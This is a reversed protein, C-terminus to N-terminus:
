LFKTDLNSNTPSRDVIKIKVDGTYTVEFVGNNCSFMMITTSDLYAVKNQYHTNFSIPKVLNRYKLKGNQKNNLVHKLDQSDSDNISFNNTQISFHSPNNVSKPHYLYVRLFM